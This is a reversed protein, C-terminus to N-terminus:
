IICVYWSKSLSNKKLRQDILPMWMNAYDFVITFHTLIEAYLIGQRVHGDEPCEQKPCLVVVHSFLHDGIEFKGVNGDIPGCLTM